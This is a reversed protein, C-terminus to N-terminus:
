VEPLAPFTLPFRRTSSICNSFLLMMETQLSSCAIVCRGFSHGGYRRVRIHLRAVDGSQLSCDGSVAWNGGVDVCIGFEHTVHIVIKIENEKDCSRIIYLQDIAPASDEAVRSATSSNIM